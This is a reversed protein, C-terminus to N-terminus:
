LIVPHAMPLIVMSRLISKVSSLSTPPKAVVQAVCGQHAAAYPLCLVPRAPEVSLRYPAPALSANPHTGIYSNFAHKVASLEGQLLVISEKLTIIEPKIDQLDQQVTSVKGELHVNAAQLAFVAPKMVRIDRQVTAVTRTISCSSNLCQNVLIWERIPHDEQPTYTWELLRILTEISEKIAPTLTTDNCCYRVVYGIHTVLTNVQVPTPLERRIALVSVKSVNRAGTFTMTTGSEELYFTRLCEIVFDKFPLNGQSLRQFIALIDQRMSHEISHESPVTRLKRPAVVPLSRLALIIVETAKLYGEVPQKIPPKGKWEPFTYDSPVYPEQITSEM